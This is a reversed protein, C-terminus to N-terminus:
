KIGLGRQHWRSYPTAARFPMPWPGYGDHRQAYFGRDPLVFTTPCGVPAYVDVSPYIVAGPDPASITAIEAVTPRREWLDDARRLFAGCSRTCWSRAHESTLGTPGSERVCQAVHALMQQESAQWGYRFMERLRGAAEPGHWPAQSLAVADWHDLVMDDVMRLATADVLGAAAATM